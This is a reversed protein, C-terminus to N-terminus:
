VNIQLEVTRFRPSVEVLKKACRDVKLPKIMHGPM